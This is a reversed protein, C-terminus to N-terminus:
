AGPPAQQPAPTELLKKVLKEIAPRDGPSFGDKQIALKGERDLIVLYPLVSKSNLAAAADSQRDVCVTFTYNNRAVFPGVLSETDATDLSIGIVSLGDAEYKEHLEQLFPMEAACPKCFTAWFSFIVVRSGVLDAFRVKRGKIDDLNLARVRASNIRGGAGTSAASCAATLALCATLLVPIARM